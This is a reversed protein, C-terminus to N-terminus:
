LYIPRRSSTRSKQRGTRRVISAVVALYLGQPFRAGHALFLNKKIDLRINYICVSVVDPVRNLPWTFSQRYNVIFLNRQPNNM